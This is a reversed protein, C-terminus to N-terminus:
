ESIRTLFVTGIETFVASSTKSRFMLRALNRQKVHVSVQKYQVQSLTKQVRRWCFCRFVDGEEGFRAKQHSQVFQGPFRQKCSSITSTRTFRLYFLITSAQYSKNWNQESNRQLRNAVTKSLTKHPKSLTKEKKESSWWACWARCNQTASLTQPLIEFIRKWM